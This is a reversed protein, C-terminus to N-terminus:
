RLDRLNYGKFSEKTKFVKAIEKNTSSKLNDLQSIIMEDGKQILKLLSDIEELNYPNAGAEVKLTLSQNNVINILRDRNDLEFIAQDLNDAELYNLIHQTVQNVSHLLDIFKLLNQNEM